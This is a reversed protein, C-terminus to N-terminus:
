NQLKSIRAKAYDLKESEGYDDKPLLEIDRIMKGM